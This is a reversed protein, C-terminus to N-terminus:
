VERPAKLGFKEASDVFSSVGVDIGRELVTLLNAILIQVVNKQSIEKRSDLAKYRFTSSLLQLICELIKNPVRSVHIAVM